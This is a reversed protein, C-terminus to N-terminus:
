YSNFFLASLKREVFIFIAVGVLGLASETMLMVKAGKEDAVWGLLLGLWWLPFNSLSAFVNYATAAAGKDIVTLAMATFASYSMGVIWSYLINWFVYMSVTNPSQAMALAIFAMVIGFLVYAKHANMRLCVWGGVFCGISNFFGALVGQVLEVDAEGASWYAAVAAQTLTAQASGTAIPLICLLSALVGAPAKVMQWFGSAVTKISEIAGQNTVHPPVHELPLLALCCLLFFGGMIAGSMWAQPLNQLLFLGLAGGLGTGGLNGTQLWASVRGIEHKPTLYSIMAEVSMGVISNVVNSAAIIVLLLWLTDRGLPISAMAFVGFGSFSTAFLYWKKPNLSVDVLPAWLWKLWSVLLQSAVILSGETISLGKKTALFTLAVSVFGGLAGFPIYLILWIFPHHAKAKSGGKITSQSRIFIWETM